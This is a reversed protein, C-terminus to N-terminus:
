QSGVLDGEGTQGSDLWVLPGLDVQFIFIFVLIDDVALVIWASAFPMQKSLLEFLAKTVLPVLGFYM